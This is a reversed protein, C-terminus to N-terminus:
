LCPAEHIERYQFCEASLRDGAGACAAIAATGGDKLAKRRTVGGCNSDDHESSLPPGKASAQAFLRTRGDRGDVVGKVSVIGGSLTSHFANAQLTRLGWTPRVYLGLLVTTIGRMNRYQPLSAAGAGHQKQLRLNTPSILDFGRIRSAEM